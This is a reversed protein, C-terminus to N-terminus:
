KIPSRVYRIKDINIGIAGQATDSASALLESTGTLASFSDQILGDPMQTLMMAALAGIVISGSAGRDGRAKFLCRILHFGLAVTSVMILATLGYLLYDRHEASLTGQMLSDSLYDHNRAVSIVFLFWVLGIIAWFVPHENRNRINSKSRGTRAFHGDIRGVRARFEDQGM